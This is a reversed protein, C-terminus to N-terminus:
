AKTRTCTSNCKTAKRAAPIDALVREWTWDKLSDGAETLTQTRTKKVATVRASKPFQFYSQVLDEDYIPKLDQSKQKYTEDFQRVLDQIDAGALM